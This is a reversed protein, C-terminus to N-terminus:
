EPLGTKRLGEVLKALDEPRRLPFLNGLQSIRFAPSLQRLRAAAGRAEDPRGAIANGAAAVIHAPVWNPMGRIAREVWSLADEYRGATFHAWATASQMQGILPDLPSLRMARAEHELATEPEGLWTR